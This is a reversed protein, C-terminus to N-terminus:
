LTIKKKNKEKKNIWKNKILPFIKRYIFKSKLEWLVSNKTGARDKMAIIAGSLM